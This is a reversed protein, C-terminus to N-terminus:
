VEHDVGGGDERGVEQGGAGAEGRSQVLTRERGRGEAGVPGVWCPQGVTM